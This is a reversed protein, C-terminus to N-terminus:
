SRYNNDHPLSITCSSNMNDKIKQQRSKPKVDRIFTAVFKDFRELVNAYNEPTLLSGKLISDKPIRYRETM